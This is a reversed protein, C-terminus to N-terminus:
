TLWKSFRAPYDAHMTAFRWLVSDILRIDEGLSSAISGCLDSVSQFGMLDALRVLHRDPKAVRIGINKAIHFVTVPGIYQLSQLEKIPDKLIRQRFNEFSPAAAIVNAANAIARIKPQHRFHHLAQTICQESMDSISRASQWELFAKSVSPFVRKIVTEAMGASLIVWAVERLFEAESVNAADRQFTVLEERHPSALVDMKACLYAHAVAIDDFRATEQMALRNHRVM